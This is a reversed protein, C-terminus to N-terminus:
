GINHIKRKHKALNRIKLKASCVPCQTWDDSQSISRQLIDRTASQRRPNVVVDFDPGIRILKEIKSIGLTRKPEGQSSYEDDPLMIGLKRLHDRIQEQWYDENELEL